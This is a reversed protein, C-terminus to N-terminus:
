HEASPPALSRDGLAYPDDIPLIPALVAAGIVSTMWAIGLWGAVGLRARAAREVPGAAPPALTATGLAAAMGAQKLEAGPATIDAIEDPEPM